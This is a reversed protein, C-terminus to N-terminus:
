KKRIQENNVTITTVTSKVHKSIDSIIKENLTTTGFSLNTISSPLNSLSEFHTFNSGLTLSTVNSSISNKSLEINFNYLNLNTLSQSYPIPNTVRFKLGSRFSLVSHLLHGPYVYYEDGLDLYKVSSPISEIIECLKNFVLHIVSPPISEGRIPHNFSPLILFKIGSPLIKPTLPQNYIPLKLFEVTEPIPLTEFSQNFTSLELYKLGFFLSERTIKSDLVLSFKPDDQSCSMYNQNNENNNNNNNNSNNNNNNINAQSKIIQEGQQILRTVSSPISGENFPISTLPLELTSIYYPIVGWQLPQRYSNLSLEVLCFPLIGWQLPQNFSQLKLVTVTKPIIDPALPQNFSSLLLTRVAKPLSGPSLPKNFSPLNLFRVSNPFIGALITQNFSALELTHISDPILGVNLSRHFSSLSLYYVGYTFTKKCIPQNFLPLILSDSNNQIGIYILGDNPEGILTSYKPLSTTIKNSIIDTLTQNNINKSLLQSIVKKFKEVLHNPIKSFLIDINEDNTYDCGLMQILVCGLNFMDLQISDEYGHSLSFNIFKVSFGHESEDNVLLINEGKINGHIAKSDKHICNLSEVLKCTVLEIITNTVNNFNDISSDNPILKVKSVPISYEIFELYIYVDQNYDQGCGYYKLVYKNDRLKIHNLIENENFYQSKIKKVTCLGFRNNTFNPGKLKKSMYVTYQENSELQTIIEWEKEIHHQFEIKKQNTFKIHTNIQDFTTSIIDM